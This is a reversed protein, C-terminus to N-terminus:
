DKHKGSPAAFGPAAGEKSANGEEKEDDGAGLDEQAHAWLEENARSAARVESADGTLVGDFIHYVTDAYSAIGPDHTIMIITSGNEHLKRFLAMVQRGSTSDLAGTPEDALLLAPKGVIARAIAVRQCQGGSLQNPLSYLKDELGVTKLAEAARKRRESKKVGGFLLPLAVNDLAHMKPLLHFSQFVFGLKKNRIDALQNDTCVGIEQGALRYTGSTPVDLCGILNMLTSKGSGSPGMIAVYDGENITLNVNKLVHLVSKGMPYDKCISRMELIM